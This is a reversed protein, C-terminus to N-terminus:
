KIVTLRETTTGGDTHIMVNYVGSALTATNINLTHAGSTMNENAVMNVVRGLGDVVQVHVNSAASLEFSLTAEDKAPNPFISIASSAGAINEVATSSVINIDDVFMFNGGGDTARFALMNSGATLGSLSVSYAKYSTPSTPYSYATTSAPLTVASAGSVTSLVTWNAGCDTSNIVELKDTNSTTQQSYAVWFKLSTNAPTAINVIPLVFSNVDGVGYNILPFGMAYTGSHGLYVGTTGTQWKGWVSGDKATNSAYYITDTAEFSTGYPLNMATSNEVFFSAGSVNNAANVDASGNPMAVSDIFTHYASAAVTVSTAPLTVTATAGPALTGTWPFSAYAGADAKYYITASTLPTLGTNKLVASHVASLTGTACVLSTASTSSSAADVPISPLATSKAAQQIIKNGDDQMWGVIYPAGTKDVWNPVACKIVYNNTMGTTWTTPLSTGLADPYMGQVVNEFHTEGNSGPSSLFDNTQVMAIRLRPTGSSATWNTVCKVQVNAVITDYTANWASTITIAFSDPVLAQADIDAQTFFGPHGPYTSAPDPVHGDYRGEPAFTIGYYSDRATHIASTRNCYFGASPIPVMYSIHILKSPNTGSNCLTWFSPNTSACPGCNEGTMEEHLTMRQANAAVSISAVATLALLFKKM